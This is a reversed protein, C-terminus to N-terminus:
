RLSIAFIELPNQVNVATEIKTLDARIVKFAKIGAYAKVGRRQLTIFIQETSIVLFMSVFERLFHLFTSLVYM